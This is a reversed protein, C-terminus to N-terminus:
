RRPPYAVEMQEDCIMYTTGNPAAARLDPLAFTTSGNGGFTTGMLSFLATNERISLLQGRAPIGPGVTGATLMITGLTCETGFGAVARGTNSGFPSPASPPPAIDDDDDFGPRDSDPPTDGRSWVILREGRKCTGSTLLRLRGNKRNACAKIQASEATVVTTLDGPADTSVSQAMGFTAASATLASALAIGWTQM